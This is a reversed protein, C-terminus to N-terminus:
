NTYWYVHLATKNNIRIIEVLSNVPNIHMLTNNFQSKINNATISPLGVLGLM